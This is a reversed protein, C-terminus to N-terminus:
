ASARSLGGKSTGALATARLKRLARYELARMYAPSLRPWSWRSPGVPDGIGFRIRLVHQEAPTLEQLAHEVGREVGARSDAAAAILDPDVVSSTSRGFRNGHGNTNNM